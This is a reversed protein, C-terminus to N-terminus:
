DEDGYESEWNYKWGIKPINSMSIFQGKSAEKWELKQGALDLDMKMLNLFLRKATLTDRSEEELYAEEAHTAWLEITNNEFREIDDETIEGEQHLKKLNTEILLRNYDSEYIKEDTFGIDLLQKAFVMDKVDTKHSYSELKQFPLRESRAKNFSAITKLYFEEGTFEFPEKNRVKNFFDEKLIGILEYFLSDVRSQKISKRYQLKDKVEDIINDLNLDFVVNKFFLDKLNFDYINQLYNKNTESTTNKYERLFDELKTFNDTTIFTAHHALFNNAENDLKNSVFVFKTNKIFGEKDTEKNIIDVWLSLTKWLDTDSTTLNKPLNSASTQITHKLQYLTLEGDVEKHVDEQVEFGVTDDKGMKLLTLVFYYFQYEFGILKDDANTSSM